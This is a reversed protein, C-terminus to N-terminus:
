SAAGDLFLNGPIKQWSIDSLRRTKFSFDQKKLVNSLKLINRRLGIIIKKCASINWSKLNLNEKSMRQELKLGM